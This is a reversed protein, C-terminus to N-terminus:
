VFWYYYIDIKCEYYIDTKDDAPNKYPGDKSYQLLVGSAKTYNDNYEILDYM